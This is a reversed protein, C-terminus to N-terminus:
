GLVICEEILGKWVPEYVRDDVADAGEREGCGIRLGMDERIARMSGWINAEDIFVLRSLTNHWVFISSSIM